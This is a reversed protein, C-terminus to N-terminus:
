SVKLFSPSFEADHVTIFVDYHMLFPIYFNNEQFLVALKKLSEASHIWHTFARTHAHTHKLLLAM